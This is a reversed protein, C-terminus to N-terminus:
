DTTLPSDGARRLWVPGAPAARVKEVFAGEYGLDRLAAELEGAGRATLRFARRAQGRPALLRQRPAAPRAGYRNVEQMCLVDPSAAAIEALLLPGRHAWSLAAPPCQHRRVVRKTLRPAVRSAPAGCRRAARAKIFDGNQALGDALCNWQLLRLPPPADPPAPSLPVLRRSLADAGAGPRALTAHARQPQARSSRPLPRRRLTASRLAPPPAHLSVVSRM